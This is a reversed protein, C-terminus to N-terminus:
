KKFSGELRRKNELRKRELTELILERENDEFTKMYHEKTGRRPQM